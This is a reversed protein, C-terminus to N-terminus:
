EGEKNVVPTKATSFIHKFNFIFYIIIGGTLASDAVNFAPWHWQGVYVDIFDVVSGRYIRDIMNGIAGGMIMSFAAEEPRNNVIRLYAVIIVIAVITLGIFFANGATSLIGFAAGTNRINIIQLFPLVDIKGYYPSVTRVVIEKTIQDLATVFFVIFVIFAVKKM